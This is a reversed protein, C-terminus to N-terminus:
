QTMSKQLVVEMEDEIVVLYKLETFKSGKEKFYVNTIMM